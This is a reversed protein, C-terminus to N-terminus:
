TLSISSNAALTISFMTVTILSHSASDLTHSSKKGMPSKLTNNVLAEICKKLSCILLFSILDSSTQLTMGAACLSRNSCRSISVELINLTWDSFWFSSNILTSFNSKECSPRVPFSNIDSCLSIITSILMASSSFRNTARLSTIVLPIFFSSQTGNPDCFCVRATTSIAVTSLAVTLAMRLRLM